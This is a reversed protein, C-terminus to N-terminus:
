CSKAGMESSITFDRLSLSTATLSVGELRAGTMSLEAAVMGSTVVGQVDGTASVDAGMAVNSIGISGGVVSADAVLDRATTGDGPVRLFMTVDGVLPLGHAVTSLCVDTLRASEILIAVTPVQGAKTEVQRPFVTISEGEVASMTGVFRQGSLAVNMPLQGDAIGAGLITAALLGGSVIAAFRGKRLAGM